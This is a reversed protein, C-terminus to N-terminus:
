ASRQEALVLADYRRLVPFVPAAHEPLRSRDMGALLTLPFLTKDRRIRAINLSELASGAVMMAEHRPLILQHYTITPGVDVPTTQAGTLHGAKALASESGFMYEVVNGSIKLCQAPSVVVDRRLGFFPARLRIPAWSGRAPVTRTLRYLVPVVEGRDTRITDGRNLAAIPKEGDPTLIPTRAALSPCPGVPEVRSSVALFSVEADLFCANQGHVLASLDSLRLPPPSPLETVAFRHRDIDEICLWGRKAPADWSYTLRLSDLRETYPLKVTAHRTDGAHDLVLTIGGGPVYRLAIELAWDGGSAYTMLTQPRQGQALRTELVISGVPFLALPPASIVGEADGNLGQPNFQSDYQDRLGIWTM